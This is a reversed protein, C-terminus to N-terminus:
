FNEPNFWCFPREWRDAGAVFTDLRCQPRPHTQLTIPVQTEDERVLTPLEQGLKLSAFLRAVALGALSSRVCDSTSCRKQANSVTEKSEDYMGKTEKHDNFVLPLCNFTAFYDAQGEVSAWSRLTSQGRFKKPNGGMYHGLEHCLILLLGDRTMEPHRIMGGLLNIVPNDNDDLTCHANVRDNEWELNVVLKKSFEKKVNPSLSAKFREILARAEFESLGQKMGKHQSVPYRLENIPFCQQAGWLSQTMLVLIFGILLQM